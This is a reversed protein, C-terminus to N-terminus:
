FNRGMYNVEKYENQGSRKTNVKMAKIVNRLVDFSDVVNSMEKFNNAMNAYVIMNSSADLSLHRMNKLKSTYYVPLTNLPRGSFDLESRIGYENEDERKIILDGLTSGVEQFFQVVGKTGKLREIFGKRVQPARFLGKLFDKSSEQLREAPLQADLDRKMNIITDYYERQADDFDEYDRSSYMDARPV